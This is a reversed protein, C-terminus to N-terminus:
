LTYNNFLSVERIIAYDCVSLATTMIYHCNFHRLYTMYDKADYVYGGPTGSPAKGNSNTIIDSYGEVGFYEDTGRHM